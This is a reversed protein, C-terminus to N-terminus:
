FECCTINLRACSSRGEAVAVALALNDCLKLQLKGRARQARCHHRVGLMLSRRELWLTDDQTGWRRRLIHQWTEMPFLM